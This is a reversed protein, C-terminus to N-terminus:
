FLPYIENITGLGNGLLASGIIIYFFAKELWRVFPHM